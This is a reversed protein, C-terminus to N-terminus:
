VINREEVVPIRLVGRDDYITTTIRRYTEGEYKIQNLAQESVINTLDNIQDIAEILHISRKEDIRTDLSKSNAIEFLRGEKVLGREIVPTREPLYIESLRNLKRLLAVRQRDLDKLEALLNQDVQMRDHRYIIINKRITNWHEIRAM